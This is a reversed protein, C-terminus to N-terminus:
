NCSASLSLLKARLHKATEAALETGKPLLEKPLKNYYHPLELSINGKYGYEALAQIVVDWNIKCMFPLLHDDVIGFNDQIHLLKLKGPALAWIFEQPTFGTCQCHGIDLCLNFVDSDLIEIIRNMLQPTNLCNHIMNEISIHINFRQATEKLLSYYAVNADMNDKSFTGKPNWLGHVVVNESGIISAYEIARLIHVFDINTTDLVSGYVVKTYPSHAQVCKLGVKDLIDRTRKAKDRFTDDLLDSFPENNYISYDVGEFGCDRILRLGPEEGLKALIYFTDTSILM